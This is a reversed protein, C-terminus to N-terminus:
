IVVHKQNEYDFDYEPVKSVGEKLKRELIKKKM